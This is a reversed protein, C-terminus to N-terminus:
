TTAKCPHKDSTTPLLYLLNPESSFPKPPLRDRALAYAQYGTYQFWHWLDGTLYRHWM